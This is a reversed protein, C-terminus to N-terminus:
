LLNEKRFEHWHIEGALDKYPNAVPTALADETKNEYARKRTLQDGEFTLLTLALAAADFISMRWDESMWPKRLNPCGLLLNM